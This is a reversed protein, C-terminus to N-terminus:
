AEIKEGQWQKAALRKSVCVVASKSAVLRERIEKKLLDARKIQFYSIALVHVDRWYKQFGRDMRTDKKRTNRPPAVAQQTVEDFNRWRDDVLYMHADGNGNIPKRGGSGLHTIDIFGKVQLEDIGNRFQKRSYGKEVAETYPFQIKGKNECVYQKSTSRRGKPRGEGLPWWAGNPWFIWYCCCQSGPCVELPQATTCKEFYTYRRSMLITPVM